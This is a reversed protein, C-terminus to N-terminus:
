NVASCNVNVDEAILNQTDDEKMFIEIYDNTSMSILATLAAMGQKSINEWLGAAECKDIAVGNKYFKAAVYKAGSNTYGSLSCNFRFVRTTAGTYTMRNGIGTTTVTWDATKEGVLNGTMNIKYYTNAIPIATSAASNNIWMEAYSIAPANVAAWTPVGGVVSLVQGNTGVAKRVYSTGNHVLIDQAVSGTVNLSPATLLGTDSLSANSNQIIKGTTGDFRVLANDTSSAPGSVDGGTDDAAWEVNGGVVKLVQGNAGVAKRAYSTGDHVLIDQNVGGDINFTGPVTVATTPEGLEISLVEHNANLDVEMIVNQAPLGSVSATIIYRSGHQVLHEVRSGSGSITNIGGPADVFTLRNTGAETVLELRSEDDKNIFRFIDVTGPLSPIEFDMSNWTTLGYPAANKVIKLDDTGNSAKILTQTTDAGDGLTLEGTDSLTAVGDKISKGTTGDFRVIANDTSSAPGNVDGDNDDAAWDVNGGVVKLVQGEAGVAKRAYSTGDHVLIDQNVGGGINFTGPVTVATGAEGLQQSVVEHNANLTNLMIPHAVNGGPNSFASINFHIGKAMNMQVFSGAQTTNIGDSNVFLLRSSAAPNGTVISTVASDDNNILRFTEFSSPLGPLMFDFAEYTPVGYPAHNKVIKFEGTTNPIKIIDQTTDMGDGLTLEGDDSLIAVSDQLIKGTTGDFRVVANDTSSAPGSVDGTGSEPGWRLGQPQSSDAILMSGDPGIGGALPQYSEGDGVLIDGVDAEADIKLFKVDVTHAFLRWNNEVLLGSVASM